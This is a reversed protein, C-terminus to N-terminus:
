EPKIDALKVLQKTLDVEHRMQKLFAEGEVGVPEAGATNIKQLVEPRALTKRFFQNLSAVTAAPLRAPGVVGIWTESIMGAYGQEVFTPADPLFQSRKQSAVALVRLQGSKIFPLAANLASVATNVEGGLLARVPDTSSKFPVHYLKVGALHQFQEVGLHTSVGVGSSAYQIAGPRKKADAVFEALNKWPADARVVLMNPATVLLNIATFDETADYPMERRMAPTATHTSPIFLLTHGDPAAKAVFQAGVVGSAGPKNIVLFAQGFEKKMEEAMIRAVVDTVGGAAFGVVLQVPQTPKYANQAPAATMMAAAACAICLRAFTRLHWTTKM